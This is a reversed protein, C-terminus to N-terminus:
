FGSQKHENELAMELETIYALVIVFETATIHTREVPTQNGSQLRLWLNKIIKTAETENSV